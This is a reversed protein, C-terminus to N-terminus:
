AYQQSLFECESSPDVAISILLSLFDNECVVRGGQPPFALPHTPSESSPSSFPKARRRPSFALVACITYSQILCPTSLSTEFAQFTTNLLSCTYLEDSQSRALDHDLIIHTVTCTTIPISGSIPRETNKLMVMLESAMLSPM